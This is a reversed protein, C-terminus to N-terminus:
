IHIIIFVYTHGSDAKKNTQKNAQKNKTKNKLLLNVMLMSLHSFVDSSIFCYLYILDTSNSRIWTLYLMVLLVPHHSPFWCGRPEKTGKNLHSVAGATQGGSM